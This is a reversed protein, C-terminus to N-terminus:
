AMIKKFPLNKQKNQKAKKLSHLKHTATWQFTKIHILVVVVRKRIDDEWRKLECEFHSTLVISACYKSHNTTLM